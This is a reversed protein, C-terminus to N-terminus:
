MQKAVHLERMHDVALTTQKRSYLSTLILSTELDRMDTYMARVNPKHLDINAQIGHQDTEKGGLPRTNISKPTENDLYLLSGLISVIRTIKTTGLYSKAEKEKDPVCKM